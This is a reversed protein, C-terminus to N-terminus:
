DFGTRRVRVCYIDEALERIVEQWSSVSVPRVSTQPNPVDYIHISWQSFAILSCHKIRELRYVKLILRLYALIKSLLGRTQNSFFFMIRLCKGGHSTMCSICAIPFHFASVLGLASPIVKFRLFAKALWFALSFHFQRPLPDAVVAVVITCHLITTFWWSHHELDSAAKKGDHCLQGFEFVGEFVALEAKIAWIQLRCWISGEHGLVYCFM